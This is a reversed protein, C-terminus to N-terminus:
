ERTVSISGDTGIHTAIKSKPKDAKPAMPTKAGARPPNMQKPRPARDGLIPDLTQLFKQNAAENHAKIAEDVKGEVESFPLGPNETIIRMRFSKRTEKNEPNLTDREKDQHAIKVAETEGTSLGFHDRIAEATNLRGSVLMRDMSAIVSNVVTGDIVHGKNEMDLLANYAMREPLSSLRMGFKNTKDLGPKAQAYLPDGSGESTMIKGQGTGKNPMAWMTPGKGDASTTVPIPTTGYEAGSSEGHRLKEAHAKYYDNQAAMQDLGGIMQAMQFPAAIRQFENNRRIADTGMLAGSVNSISDGITAQTKIQSMTMLANEIGRTLTPHNGFFNDSGPEPLFVNERPEPLQLGYRSLAENAREPNTFMDEPSGVGRPDVFPPTRYSGGGGSVRPANAIRSLFSMFGM